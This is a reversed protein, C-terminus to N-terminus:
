GDDDDEEDDPLPPLGVQKRMLNIAAETWFGPTAVREVGAPWGDVDYVPEAQVAEFRDGPRLALIQEETM